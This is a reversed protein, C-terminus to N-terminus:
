TLTGTNWQHTLVARALDDLLKTTGVATSTLRWDHGTDQYTRALATTPQPKVRTPPCGKLELFMLSGTNRGTTGRIILM